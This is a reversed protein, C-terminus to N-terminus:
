GIAKVTLKVRVGKRALALDRELEQNAARAEPLERTKEEVVKERKFLKPLKSLASLSFGIGALTFVRRTGFLSSKAFLSTDPNDITSTILTANVVFFAAGILLDKLVTKKFLEKDFRTSQSIIRTETEQEPKPERGKLKLTGAQPDFDAEGPFDYELDVAFYKEVTKEPANRPSLLLRFSHSTSKFFDGGLPLKVTETGAGLAGKALPSGDRALLQYDCPLSSQLRLKLESPPSFYAAEASEPALSLEWLVPFDKQWSQRFKQIKQRVVPPLFALNVAVARFEGLYKNMWFLEAQPSGSRSQCYGVILSVAAKEKEPLQPFQQQLSEILQPYDTERALRLAAENKWDAAALAQVLLVAPVLLLWRNKAM